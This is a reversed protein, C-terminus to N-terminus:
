LLFDGEACGATIGFATEQVSFGEFIRDNHHLKGALAGQASFLKLSEFTVGPTQGWLSRFDSSLSKQTM